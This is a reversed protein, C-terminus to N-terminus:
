EPRALRWLRTVTDEGGMDGPAKDEYWTYLPRYRYAWMKSGDARTILTFDGNPKADAPAAYPRWKAACDGNCNSRDGSDDRVFTYLTMGNGDVLIRGRKSDATRGPNTSGVKKPEPPPGPDGHSSALAVSATMSMAVAVVCIRFRM